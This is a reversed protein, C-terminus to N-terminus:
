RAFGGRKAIDILELRRERAEPADPRANTNLLALRLVREPAQRLIEFAVYGGMSLGALAFREPAQELVSAALVKLDASGSLDPVIPQVVDHLTAIQHSWLGADTLLGPCLVLPITSM